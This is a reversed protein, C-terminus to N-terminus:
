HCQVCDPVLGHRSHCETCNLQGHRSSTGAWRELVAGHCAGCTQVSAEPWFATQLPKHAPHCRACDAVPQADYHLPHCSSCALIKGHRQPHCSQCGQVSHASSFQRLQAEPSPHCEACAAVL